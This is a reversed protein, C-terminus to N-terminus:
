GRGAAKPKAMETNVVASLVLVVAGIGLWWGSDVIALTVAAPIMGVGLAQMGERWWQWRGPTGPQGEPTTMLGVLLVTVAVGAWTWEWTFALVLCAIVALLTGVILLTKPLDRVAAPKEDEVMDKVM